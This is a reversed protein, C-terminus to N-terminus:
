AGKPALGVLVRLARERLRDDVRRDDGTPGIPRPSPFLLSLMRVELGDRLFAGAGDDPALGEFSRRCSCLAADPDSTVLASVQWSMAQRAVQHARDELARGEGGGELATRVADRASAVAGAPLHASDGGRELLQEPMTEAISACAQCREGDRDWADRPRRGWSGFRRDCISSADEWCEHGHLADQSVHLAGEAWLLRGSPRGWAGLATAARWGDLEWAAAVSWSASGLVQHRLARAEPVGSRVGGLIALAEFTGAGGPGLADRAAAM